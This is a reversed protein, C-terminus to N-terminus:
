WPLLLLKIKSCRNNNNQRRALIWQTVIIATAWDYVTSPIPWISREDNLKPVPAEKTDEEDLSLSPDKM